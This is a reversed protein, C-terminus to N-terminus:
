IPGDVPNYHTCSNHKRLLKYEFWTTQTAHWLMSCIAQQDRDVKTVQNKKNRKPLGSWDKSHMDKTFRVSDQKLARLFLRHGIQRLLQLSEAKSGEPLPVRNDWLYLPIAVDDAKVVKACQKEEAIRRLPKLQIDMHVGFYGIRGEEELRSCLRAEEEM